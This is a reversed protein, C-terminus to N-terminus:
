MIQKKIEIGKILLVKKTNEGLTVNIRKGPNEGIYDSSAAVMVPFAQRLDGSSGTSYIESKWVPQDLKSERYAKLDYAALFIYRSFTVYTEVRTASGVVGYEPNHTTTSSYATNGSYSGHSGYTNLNGSTNATGITTSSAIGTQGFIPVNYVYTNEKPEGIGYGLLIGMEAKDKDSVIEYGRIQLVREVYKSFEKFQLDDARVKDSAPLIICTKGIANGTASISDVTVNFFPGTSACGVLGLSLLAMLLKKMLAGQKLPSM